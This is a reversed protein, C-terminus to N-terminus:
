PLPATAANGFRDTVRIMTAAANEAVSAVGTADTTVSAAGLSTGNALLLEVSVQQSRVPVPQNSQLTMDMLRWGKPAHWSATVRVNGGIRMASSLTVGGAIITFPASDIM